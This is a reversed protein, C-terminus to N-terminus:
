QKQKQELKERQEPTLWELPFGRVGGVPIPNRKLAELRAGQNRAGGKRKRARMLMYRPDQPTDAPLPSNKDNAAQVLRELMDSASKRNMRMTAYTEESIKVFGDKGLESSPTEGEHRGPWGPTWRPGALVKLRQLADSGELPLSSVPAIVVAKQQLPSDPDSLDVTRTVRIQGKPPQFKKAQAPPTLPTRPDETEDQYDSLQLYFM